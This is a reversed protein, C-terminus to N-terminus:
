PMVGRLMRDGTSPPPPKTLQIVRWLALALPDPAPELRTKQDQNM